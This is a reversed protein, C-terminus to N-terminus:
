TRSRKVTSPRLLPEQRATLVQTATLGMEVMKGPFVLLFDVEVRVVAVAGVVPDAPAVREVVRM